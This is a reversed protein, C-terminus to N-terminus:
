KAELLRSANRNASLIRMLEHGLKMFSPQAGRGWVAPSHRAPVGRLSARQRLLNFTLFVLGVHPNRPTEPANELMNDRFIGTIELNRGTRIRDPTGCKKRLRAM